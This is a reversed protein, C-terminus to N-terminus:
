VPRIEDDGQEAEPLQESVTAPECSAATSTGSGTTGGSLVVAAFVIVVLSRLAQQAATSPSAVRRTLSLSSM